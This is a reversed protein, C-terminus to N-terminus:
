LISGSSVLVISINDSLILITLYRLGGLSNGEQENFVAQISSRSFVKRVSAAYVRYNWSILLAMSANQAKRRFDVSPTLNKRKSRPFIWKGALLIQGFPTSFKFWGQGFIPLQEVKRLTPSAPLAAERGCHSNGTAIMIPFQFRTKLAANWATGEIMWFLFTGERRERKGIRARHKSSPDISRM